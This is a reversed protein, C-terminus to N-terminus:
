LALSLIESEWREKYSDVLAALEPPFDIQGMGQRIHPFVGAGWVGPKIPNQGTHDSLWDVFMDIRTFGDLAVVCGRDTERIWESQALQSEILDTYVKVGNQASVVAGPNDPGTLGLAERCYTAIPCAKMPKSFHRWFSRAWAALDTRVNMVILAEPDGALDAWHEWMAGTRAEGKRVSGHVEELAGDRQKPNTLRQVLDVSDHRLTRWRTCDSLWANLSTGCAKPLGTAYMNPLTPLKQTPTSM